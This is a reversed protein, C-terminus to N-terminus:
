KSGVFEEVRERVSPGIKRMAARVYRRAGSPLAKWADGLGYPRDEALVEILQEAQLRDKTAKAQFAAPRRQSIWLKHFAFREPLPVNVLVVQSGLVIAQIPEEILYDLLRMPKASLGFAPLAVALSSERGVM